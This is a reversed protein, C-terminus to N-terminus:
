STPVEGGRRLPVVAQEQRKGKAWALLSFSSIARRQDISWVCIDGGRTWSYLLGNPGLTYGLLIANRELPARKSGSQVEHLRIRGRGGGVCIETGDKIFELMQGEERSWGRRWRERGSELDLMRLTNDGALVAICGQLPALAANLVTANFRLQRLTRGTEIDWLCLGTRREHSFLTRGDDSFALVSFGDAFHARRQLLEGTGFHWVYIHHRDAGALHSGQPSFALQCLPGNTLRAMLEPRPLSNPLRGHPALERCVYLSGDSCGIALDNSGAPLAVVEPQLDSIEMRRADARHLDLLVVDHYIEGRLGTLRFGVRSAGWRGNSAVAVNSVSTEHLRGKPVYRFGALWLVSGECVAMVLIIAFVKFCLAAFRLMREVFRSPCIPLSM